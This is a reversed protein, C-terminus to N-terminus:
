FTLGEISQAFNNIDTELSHSKLVDGPFPHAYNIRCLSLNM